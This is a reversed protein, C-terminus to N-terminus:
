RRMVRSRANELLNADAVNSTVTWYEDIGLAIPFLLIIHRAEPDVKNAQWWFLHVGAILGVAYGNVLGWVAANSPHPGIISNTELCYPSVHKCHVTSGADANLALLVVADSILLEKHTRIYHGIKAPMRARKIEQARSAPVCCLLCVFARFAFKM